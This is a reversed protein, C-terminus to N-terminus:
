QIKLDQFPVYERQCGDKTIDMLRIIGGSSCDRYIALAVASKLFEKAEARTFHPNYNSDIFGQIFISGSGSTALNAKDFYGGSNVQYIQSGEYPDWGACIMSASLFNKNNYIIERM